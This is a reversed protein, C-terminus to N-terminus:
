RDHESRTSFGVLLLGGTRSNAFGAVDKVLEEAGATDHLPYIGSKVDLWVCEPVGLLDTLKGDRLAARAAELDDVPVPETDGM